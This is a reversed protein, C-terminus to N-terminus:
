ASAHTHEPEHDSFRLQQGARLGLTAARGAALEVVGKARWHMRFRGPRVADHVALVAGNRAVFVIDITMRMGLTHVANCPTIWLAEEEDLRDRGLLGQMREAARVTQAAQSCLAEDGRYLGGHKM